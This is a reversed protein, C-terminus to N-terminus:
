YLCTQDQRLGYLYAQDQRHGYLYTQDQRRRYIVKKLLQLPESKFCIQIHKCSKYKATHQM